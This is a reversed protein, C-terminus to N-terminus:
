FKSIDFIELKEPTILLKEFSLFARFTDLSTMVDINREIAARRMNFGDRKSDNGKTPTNVLLHVEKNKILDMLNPSDENIRNVARAKIGAAKLSDATGQTSVFNFGLKDLDKAIEIFEDKDQNNITALITKGKKGTYMNAGVFGKYLAEELTNGIGLVEGTSKMEPGLSIEVNPLKQTSFVPVKVSILKSEKYIGTGYDLDKLKAGLMVKTALEVIPVKSVKSIYPVTRSARPNVEIVYLKEDLSIFQINIMGKIGIGLALKKTYDLIDAKIKDSVNQTPYMTISDGSHVGARELHEMIGPILVDEGDSIADVELEMGMIYKDVLVPNKKDKKFADILYHSIEEDSHTIEMGQGGLVFSPRVLIPYGLRSAVSVGEQINWVAKGKPRAIGLKELLADFQERDEALDIQDSTTGLTPINKEKLFKALKIATQGGFQLIVGDPKEKYIIELVDEETLPEFYLKDSINFDTSVTEPNNNIIITEIGMKRLAMVCHVSAYDFEIGQGIRIPGSGLVIVKKKDSVEVEDYQEYTSYYYPSMAEFEGACTDVMKFAPNIDWINRLKYVQDPSVKLMDSIAKDSFGHKKLNLLWEKDLDALKSLKLRQEENIIWKFKELYFPDIGTIKSIKDMRYDRRIIEALAFIREDDPSIVKAKLQALSYDKFKPHEMSFKNLELSRIGKLFAAEFNSGIAMVEGTAMMKTGLERDALYFKDFPWKPIKVVVYDLSPEFCAYTKQTVANKIEDLGYGLAIKAAVKAIPYGTAKSALASSRSVRPNIEIVAYEFSNPNLAFQVNCGGEIGVAELIKFSSTRLMQYEKDSLTQSPAVVISDGTHIGVPDINEMNCVTICNGKIDRMVEYEVEKWGKVSKELLVQGITSLMLGSALITRLADENEAIGGGSGGLTYAPRVIVPYGSKAAWRLGSELDTIIESEIVPQNIEKMMNRFLERDEGKKIADISTGIVNVNYKELIGNDHLDVAMNLGTQGGMGALLSDPREKAIIMEVFELTIPEIYIKDAIERDTMITAPNSNVLVVEIGEEKLSQCAQTGSYDFEAAQGIIIPGSGIVLVKKIAKNLPM